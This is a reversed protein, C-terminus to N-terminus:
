KWVIVWGYTFNKSVFRGIKSMNPAKEGMIQTGFVDLWNSTGPQLIIIYDSKNNGGAGEASTIHFWRKTGNNWFNHTNGCFWVFIKAWDGRKMVFGEARHSKWMQFMILRFLICLPMHIIWNALSSSWWEFEVVIQNCLHWFYKSNGTLGTLHIKNVMWYCCETCKKKTALINSDRM